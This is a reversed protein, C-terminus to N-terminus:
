LYVNGASVWRIAGVLEEAAVHKTIYGSAGALMMEFLYQKDEHVTLALINCQPSLAKLRPTSKRVVREPIPPIMVVWWM